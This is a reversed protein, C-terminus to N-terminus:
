NSSASPLALAQNILFIMRLLLRLQSRCLRAKVEIDFGLLDGQVILVQFLHRDVIVFHIDLQQETTIRKYLLELALEARDFSVGCFRDLQALILGLLRNRQRSGQLAFIDDDLDRGSTLGLGHRIVRM